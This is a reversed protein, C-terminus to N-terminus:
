AVVAGKDALEQLMALIDRGVTERPANFKAALADAPEYFHGILGTTSTPTM